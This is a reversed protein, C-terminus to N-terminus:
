SPAPCVMDPRRKTNRVAVPKGVALLARALPLGLWGAGLIGSAGTIHQETMM